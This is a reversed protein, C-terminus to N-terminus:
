GKWRDMSKGRLIVCAEMTGILDASCASKFNLCLELYRM